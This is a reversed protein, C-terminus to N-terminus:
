IGKAHLVRRSPPKRSFRARFVQSRALCPGWPLAVHPDISPNSCDIPSQHRSQMLQVHLRFGLVLEQWGRRIRPWAAFLCEAPGRCYLAPGFFPIPGHFRVRLRTGQHSPERLKSVAVIITGVIPTM